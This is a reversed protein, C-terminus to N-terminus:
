KFKEEKSFRMGESYPKLAKDCLRHLVRHDARDLGARAFQARGRVGPRPEKLLRASILARLVRHNFLLTPATVGRPRM